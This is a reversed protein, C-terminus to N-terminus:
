KRRERSRARKRLFQILAELKLPIRARSPYYLYFGAFPPCFDELVPLLEGRQIYPRFTDEMGITLGAGDCALRLMLHKENTNVRAEIALEFDKGKETFEWHYPAGNAM